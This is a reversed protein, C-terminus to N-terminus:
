LALRVFSTSQLEDCLSQIMPSKNRHARSLELTAEQIKRLGIRSNVKRALQIASRLSGCAAEEEKEATHARAENIHIHAEWRVNESNPFEEHLRNLAHTIHNLATRSDGRRLAEGMLYSSAATESFRIGGATPQQAAGIALEEARHV